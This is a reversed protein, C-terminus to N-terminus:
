PTGRGALPLAISFVTGKGVTSDVTMSGGHQQTVIFYSLSLGLGTGSGVERTTFFPEFVRRRVEEAMGPGNDEIDVRVWPGDCRTRLVFAPERESQEQAMMAEAGNKLVNLFVQQIKSRECPVPPCDVAYERVIQVRRFDYQKSPDYDSSVLALTKELLEALDCSSPAAPSKRSFSLMNEVLEAARRGSELVGRLMRLVGRRELYDQIAELSVGVAEAAQRNAPLDETTRRLANQVNQLIAALPNNVEHAMGAALGGVSLMKESQIMREEMRVRDTVDDLRIVAGAVGNEVLPYVTIDTIRAPGETKQIITRAQQVCGSALATRVRELEASFQPFVEPLASGCAQDVSIGSIEAAGRNWATVRADGDVAVLVSPMSDIISTLLSRLRKLEELARIRDTIDLATFTVGLSLDTPDLPTSSLLVEIETGDKRCWRTEVTGTGFQEIQRYKERGVWDYEADSPYLMRANRGLLEDAQYGVMRCLRENVEEFVRNRVLGIGTPAARFISRLHAESGRLAQEARKERSVDRLHEIVRYVRGAEDKIPYARVDLWVDDDEVHKEIRSPAGTELARSTACPVCPRDRGILEFCKKGRVQDPTLQLFAYGAQNYRVMTHDTEQVGIVDPIADLVTELLTSTEQLQKTLQRLEREAQRRQVQERYQDTVDRFVLVVGTVEQGDRRIPAASDAIQREQGDRAILKTHNALGVVVGERVSREVPNEAAAGTEANVIRFVQTLAQGKADVSNWGTLREAVPNMREIRGSADTVIVADGISDLTIALNIESAKLERNAQVLESTRLAIRRKLILSIAAVMLLAAATALLVPPLWDARDGGLWIVGAAVQVPSTEVWDSARRKWGRGVPISQYRLRSVGVETGSEPLNM